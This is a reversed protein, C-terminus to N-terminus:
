NVGSGVRFLTTRRDRDIGGDAPNTRSSFRLAEETAARARGRQMPVHLPYAASCCFRDIDPDRAAPAFENAAATGDIM